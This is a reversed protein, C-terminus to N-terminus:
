AKYTHKQLYDHHDVWPAGKEDNSASVYLAYLVISNNIACLQSM